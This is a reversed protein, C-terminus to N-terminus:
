REVFDGQEHMVFETSRRKKSRFFRCIFYRLAVAHWRKAQSLMVSAEFEFSRSTSAFRLFVVVASFSGGFPGKKNILRLGSGAKVFGHFPSRSSPQVTRSLSAQSCPSNGAAEPRRTRPTRSLRTGPGRTPRERRLM